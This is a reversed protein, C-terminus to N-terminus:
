FNFSYGLEIRLETFRRQFESPTDPYNGLFVFMFQFSHKTKLTYRLQLSENLIHGLAGNRNSWLYSSSGTLMLKNKFTKSGGLTVGTNQDKIIENGLKAYNVTGFLSSRSSLLGLQYTAFYTQTIIDNGTAALERDANLEKFQNYNASVVVSHSKTPTTKIFRPSVSLNQTTQAIRLSDAFRLTSARQTNSFNSYSVDIGWNDDLDATLNAAGIVRRSTARKLNQLNDRQFGLSGSFRIRGKRAIFSPNITWNELDNNLFYAGMSKYGAEVYRYQVKLGMYPLKYMVSAHFAAYLESSYNVTTFREFPKIDEKITGDEVANLRTDSTYLSIAGDSEFILKQKLFALRTQYGNVWNSAPTLKMSDLFSQQAAPASLPDDKANLTIIDFYSEDTGYGIKASYGTRRFSFNEIYVGQLTDLVTAKNFRGYMGGLRWKGPRLDVGVGLFTHGALTFPSYTLNRYGAHLTIWKYQPSLGFQNFPQTYSSQQRSFSFYFPVQVGYLSLVPSGSILYNFPLYRPPIGNAKYFVLRTDIGGHFTVPKQERIHALDQAVVPQFPMWTVLLVFTASYFIKIM